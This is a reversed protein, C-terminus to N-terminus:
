EDTAPRENPHHEIEFINVGLYQVVKSPSPALLVGTNGM